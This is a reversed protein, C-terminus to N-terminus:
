RCFFGLIVFLITAMYPAFAVNPGGKATVEM